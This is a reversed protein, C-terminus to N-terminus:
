RHATRKGSDGGPPGLPSCPFIGEAEDGGGLLLAGASAVWTSTARGHGVRLAKGDGGLRRKRGGGFPGSRVPPLTM